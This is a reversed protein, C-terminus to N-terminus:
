KQSSEWSSPFLNVYLSNTKREMKNLLKRDIDRNYCGSYWEAWTVTITCQLLKHRELQSRQLRYHHIVTKSETSLRVATYIKHEIFSQISSIPFFLFFLLYSQFLRLKKEELSLVKGPLSLYRLSKMLFILMDLYTYRYIQILIDLYGKTM